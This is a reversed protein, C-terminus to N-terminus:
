PDGINRALSMRQTILLLRQSTTLLLCQTYADGVHHKACALCLVLLPTFLQIRIYKQVRNTPVLRAWSSM